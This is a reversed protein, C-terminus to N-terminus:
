RQNENRIEDYKNWGKEFEYDYKEQEKEEDREIESLYRDLEALNGDYKPMHYLRRLYTKKSGRNTATAKKYAILREIDNLHEIDHTILYQTMSIRVQRQLEASTVEDGVGMVTFVLDGVVSDVNDM